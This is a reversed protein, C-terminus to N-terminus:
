LGVIKKELLLGSSLMFRKVFDFIGAIRLQMSWSFGCCQYLMFAPLATRKGVSEHCTWSKQSKRNIENFCSCIEWMRGGGGGGVLEENNSVVKKEYISGHATIIIGEEIVLVSHVNTRNLSTSFFGVFRSDPAGHRAFPHGFILSCLGVAM